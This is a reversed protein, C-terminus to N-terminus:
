PPSADVTTGATASPAPLAVPAVAPRIMIGAQPGRSRRPTPPLGYVEAPTRYDLGQHPRQHNYFAFYRGLGLRSEAPTQYDHLYVEEHKVSRWLREIFINDFARARGDMSIAIGAQALMGTFGASTFQSGQDTNFIAPTGLALAHRLAEVCFGVDLTVSTEWALVCRSFWDMVAALYLWGRRMPIYTIDACWVQDPRDITLGHLLYPYVKNEPSKVSTRPKPYIAELGMLRMLRRVRKPNIKADERRLWATMRRVGYFPTATYQRDILRMLAEDTGDDALPAYYRSSRALGLLACQRAVTLDPHDTEIRM